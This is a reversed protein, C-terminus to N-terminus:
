EREVRGLAHHCSRNYEQGGFREDSPKDKLLQLLLNQGLALHYRLRHMALPFRLTKFNKIPKTVRGKGRSSTQNLTQSAISM